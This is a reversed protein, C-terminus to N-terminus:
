YNITVTDTRYCLIIKMIVYTWQWRIFVLMVIIDHAIRPYRWGVKACHYYWYLVDRRVPNGDRRTPLLSLWLIALRTGPRVYVHRKQRLFRVIYTMNYITLGHRSRNTKLIRTRTDGDLKERSLEPFWRFYVFTMIRIPVDNVRHLFTHM